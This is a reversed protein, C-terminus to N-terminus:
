DEAPCDPVPRSDDKLTKRLAGIHEDWGADLAMILGLADDGLAGIGEHTLTLMTGGHAEELIWTVTTMIGNLPAITFTYVLKHPPEWHQVTGWVIKNKSGDESKNMLAYDQNAELDFEAGHFWMALKEKKTLFDWVTEAQVTFFATKTITSSM